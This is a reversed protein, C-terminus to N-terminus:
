SHRDDHIRLDDAKKAKKGSSEELEVDATYGRAPRGALQLSVLSNM